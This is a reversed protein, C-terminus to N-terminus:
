CHGLLMSHTQNQNELYKIDYGVIAQEDTRTFSFNNIEMTTRVSKMIAMTSFQATIANIFGKIFMSIPNQMQFITSDVSSKCITYPTFKIKIKM